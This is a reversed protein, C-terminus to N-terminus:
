LERRGNQLEINMGFGLAREFPLLPIGSFKFLYNLLCTGTIPNDFEITNKAVSGSIPLYSSITESAM